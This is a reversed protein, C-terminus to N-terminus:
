IVNVIQGNKNWGLFTVVNAIGGLDSVQRQRLAQIEAAQKSLLDANTGSIKQHSASAEAMEIDKARLLDAQKNEAATQEELQAKLTGERASAEQLSRQHTGLLMDGHKQLHARQADVQQLQTQLASVAGHASAGQNAAAGPPGKPM